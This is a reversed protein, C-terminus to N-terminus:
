IEGSLQKKNEPKALDIIVSSDATKIVVGKGKVYEVVEGNKLIKMFKIM